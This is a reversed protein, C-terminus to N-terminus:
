EIADDPVAASDAAAEAAPKRFRLTMRDSEGIALWAERDTDGLQLSPPLTWVGEPHDHDDNPNANIDSREELVFGANTALEIVAAEPVYGQRATVSADSGEPARHQVVGLVGGPRLVDFMSQYVAPAAGGNIWGHTSRFTLVMDASGPEGLSAQEPLDFVVTQAQEFVSPQTAMRDVLRRSYQSEAPDAMALVLQGHDRMVPALVETYWGGGPGMEVVTMGPELGFFSLTEAPHRYVDRARNSESRHAGALAAPISGTEVTVDAVATASEDSVTTDGNSPSGGCGVAGALALCLLLALRNTM